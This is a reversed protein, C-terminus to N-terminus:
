LVMNMGARIKRLLMPNEQIYGTIAQINKHKLLDQVSTLAIGVDILKTTFIRRGSHSNASDLVVQRYMGWFLKQM